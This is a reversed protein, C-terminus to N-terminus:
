SVQESSTQGYEARLDAILQARDPTLPHVYIVRRGKELADINVSWVLGAVEDVHIERGTRDDPGLPVAVAGDAVADASNSDPRYTSDSSFEQHVRTRLQERRKRTDFENRRRDNEADVDDQTAARVRAIYLYGRDEGVGYTLGDEDYYERIVEVPVVLGSRDGNLEDRQRLTTFTPNSAPQWRASVVRGVILPSIRPNRLDGSGRTVIVEDDGTRTRLAHVPDTTSSKGASTASGRIETVSSVTCPTGDAYRGVAVDVDPDPNQPPIPM